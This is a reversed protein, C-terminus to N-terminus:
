GPGEEGRQAPHDERRRRRWRALAPLPAALVVPVVTIVTALAATAGLDGLQQFNLVAVAVTESGPGYLLSSITVEHLAVLFVLAWAAVGAPALLPASVTRV